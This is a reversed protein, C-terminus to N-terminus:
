PANLIAKRIKCTPSNNKNTGLLMFGLQPLSSSKTFKMNAVPKSGVTFDISDAHVLVQVQIWGDHVGHPKASRNDVSVNNETKGQDWVGSYCHTDSLIFLNVIAGNAGCLLAVGSNKSLEVEYSLKYELIPYQDLVMIGQKSISLEGDKVSFGQLDKCNWTWGDYRDAMAMSKGGNRPDPINETRSSRDAPFLDCPKGRVFAPAKAPSKTNNIPPKDKDPETKKPDAAKDPGKETKNSKAEADDVDNAKEPTTNAPRAPEEKAPEPKVDPTRTPEVPAPEKVAEKVVEKPPAQDPPKVEARPPEPPAIVKQVPRSDSQSVLAVRSQAVPDPNRASTETSQQSKSDSGKSSSGGLMFVAFALALAAGGWILAMTPVTSAPATPARASDTPREPLTRTNRRTTSRGHPTPGGEATLVPKKMEVTEKKKAPPATVHAGTSKTVNAGTTRASCKSCVFVNDEVRKAARSEIDAQPVRIGCTDCFVIQV